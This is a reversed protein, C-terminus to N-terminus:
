VSTVLLATLLLQCPCWASSAQARFRTERSGTGGWSLEEAEGLREQSRSSRRTCGDMNVVAMVCPGRAEQWHGTVSSVTVLIIKHNFTVVAM